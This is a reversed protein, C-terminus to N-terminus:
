RFETGEIERTTFAPYASSSAILYDNLKSEPIDKKQLIKPQKNTKNYTILGYNIKSKYFNKTNLLENVINELGSPKAGKNKVFNKFYEKYLSITDDYNEFKGDFMKEMSINSWLKYAKYYNKQVMMAGNLAGVSTGTVIEYKIKLKRLAKWVGIQYAGKSGGGSLVVARMFDGFM